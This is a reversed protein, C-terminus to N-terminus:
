HIYTSPAEGSRCEGIIIRDPRMRLSNVVLRRISIEGTGEISPPRSELTVVHEQNLKIEASDEITVIREDEPIFSSLMNLLTTKGSGTGGSVIINKRLKVCIDLFDVMERSISNIKILDEFGMRKAVFKRITITPGVLALPPIIVNVRSGDSLRADVLPSSEDVRRGIPALIRDIVTIIQSDSDFRNDTLIIKGKREIYIKNRGNVMIESVADDRLLAELAGLGLIEDLLQNVIQTREERSGINKGEDALLQEIKEQTLKKVQQQKEIDASGKLELKKLDFEALLRKHIRNKLDLILKEKDPEISKSSSEKNQCLISESKINGAEATQTFFGTGSNVFKEQEALIKFSIEKIAKSYGCHPFMDVIPKGENISAVTFAPEQPIVVLVEQGIFKEVSQKEIANKTNANNLLLKILQVPYHIKKLSEIYKKARSLSIIDPELSMIVMDSEDLLAITYEDQQNSVTGILWPMIQKLQFIERRLYQPTLKNEIQKLSSASLFHVNQKYEAIVANVPLPEQNQKSDYFDNLSKEAYFNLMVSLDRKDSFDFDAMLSKNKSQAALIIAINATLLPGNSSGNIDLISILRGM